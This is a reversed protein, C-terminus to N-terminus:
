DIKVMSVVCGYPIVTYDATGTESDRNHKIVVWIVKDKVRKCGHYYGVTKVHSPEIKDLLENETWDIVTQADIWTVEVITNQKIKM